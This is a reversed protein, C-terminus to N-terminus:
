GDKEKEGEEENSLPFISLITEIVVINEDLIGGCVWARHSM